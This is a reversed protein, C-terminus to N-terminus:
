IDFQFVLYKIKLKNKETVELTSFCDNYLIITKGDKWDCYDFVKKHPLETYKEIKIDDLNM